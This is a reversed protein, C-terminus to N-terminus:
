VTLYHCLFMEFVALSHDHLLSIFDSSQILLSEQKSVPLVTIITQPEDEAQYIGV